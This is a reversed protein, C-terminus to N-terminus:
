SSVVASLRSSPSSLSASSSRSSSRGSSWPYPASGPSAPTPCDPWAPGARRPYPGWWTGVHSLWFSAWVKGPNATHRSRLYHFGGLHFSSCRWFNFSEYWFLFVVESNIEVSFSINLHFITHILLWICIIYIRLLYASAILFNLALLWLKGKVIDINPDFPIAHKLSIAGNFIQESMQDRNSGLFYICFKLILITSKRLYNCLNLFTKDPLLIMCAVFRM